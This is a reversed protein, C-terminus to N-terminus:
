YEEYTKKLARRVLESKSVGEKEALQTLWRNDEESLLVNTRHTLM